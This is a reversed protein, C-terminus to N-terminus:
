GQPHPARAFKSLQAALSAIQQEVYPLARYVNNERWPEPSRAEYKPSLDDCHACDFGFWWVNDSEGPEPLHCIGASEDAIHDCSNAFTLGGHVEIIGEPTCAFHWDDERDACEDTCPATKSESYGKGHWPHEPSVGVYGCWHGGPGRVALCPLGTEADQWQKKDPERQWPGDGWTSKDLTRYEITQMM